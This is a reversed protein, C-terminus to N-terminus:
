RAAPALALVGAVGAVGPESPPPQEPPARPAPVTPRLPLGGAAAAAPPPRLFGGFADVRSAAPRASAARAGAAAATDPEPTAAPRAAGAAPAADSDDGDAVADCDGDAARNGDGDSAGDGDGDGDNGGVLAQYQPSQCDITHLPPCTENRVGAAEFVQAWTFKRHRTDMYRKSTARKIGTSNECDALLRRKKVTGTAKSKYSDLRTRCATVL